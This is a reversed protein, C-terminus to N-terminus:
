SRKGFFNDAMAKIDEQSPGRAIREAADPAIGKKTWDPSLAWLRDLLKPDEPGVFRLIDLWSDWVQDGGGLNLFRDIVTDYFAFQRPYEPDNEDLAIQKGLDIFRIMGTGKPMTNDSM